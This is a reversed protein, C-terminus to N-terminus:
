QLLDNIEFDFVNEGNDEVTRPQPIDVLRPQLALEQADPGMEAYGPIESPQKEPVRLTVRHEGVLAGELDRTFRLSYVGQEDTRGFSMRGEAPQFQVLVAQLPAGDRTVKGTVDRLALEGDGFCGVSLISSIIALCLYIKYM